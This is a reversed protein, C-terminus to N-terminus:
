GCTLLKYQMEDIDLIEIDYFYPYFWTFRNNPLEIDVLDNNNNHYKSIKGYNIAGTSTSTYRIYQGPKFNLLEVKM